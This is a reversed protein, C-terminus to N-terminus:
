TYITRGSEYKEKIDKALARAGERAPSIIKVEPMLRKFENELHSFHTCGLILADASFDEATKKIKQMITVCKENIKGDRNGEEVLSVLEQAAIEKVKTNSLASIEGGFAGLSVTRETAIVLVRRYKSAIVAAPKIIPLCIQREGEDLLSYICSATCCAILIREAGMDRLRIIDNKVLAILEDKSKTGYPANKRDALYIIDQRPLLRRLEYYACMGGVGSDFVGIM